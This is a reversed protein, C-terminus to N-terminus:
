GHARVNVVWSIVPNNLSSLKNIAAGSPEIKDFLAAFHMTTDLESEDIGSRLSWYHRKWRPGAGESEGARRTVTPEIGLTATVEDPDIGMFSLEVYQKM